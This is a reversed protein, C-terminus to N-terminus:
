VKRPIFHKVDRYEHLWQREAERYITEDWAWNYPNGAWRSEPINKRAWEEAMNKYNQEQNVTQGSFHDCEIGLVGVTYGKAITECSLLRDYFHHPPFDKRQPIMDLVIRRFIMACGDVVAANMFGTLRKGHVEAPSGTWVKRNNFPDSLTGPLINESSVSPSHSLSYGVFNSATGLGRGGASDIENSGIFGLLGLDENQEFTQIVRLDWNKEYIALDSHFFALIDGTCHELGSWFTPYVGISKECRWIIVNVKDSEYQFSVDSGNDLILLEVDNKGSLNELAIDICASAIPFQNMVPFVISLKM